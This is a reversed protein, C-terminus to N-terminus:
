WSSPCSRRRGARLWAAPAPAPSSSTPRSVFSNPQLHPSGISGATQLVPSSQSTRDRWGVLTACDRRFAALLAADVSASIPSLRGVPAVKGSQADAALPPALVALLLLFPIAIM